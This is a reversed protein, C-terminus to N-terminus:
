TQGGLTFFFTAGREPEAEAWIAGGHRQVIRQAIALGVGSGDYEERKHLRQFVGFLKDAYRMDFGAGNDKVFYAGHGNEGNFGIEVWANERRRTFKFANSLLNLYVQRLLASDARCPPLEGIRVEVRRLELEVAMEALVERVLTRTEIRRRAIPHRSLRSFELLGEVLVAMRISRDGILDLYKRAPGSFEDAHKELLIHSFGEIARLPTRLDHAISYGFAELERNASDLEATRLAVRRELEENLKRIEERAKYRDTADRAAAMVWIGKDTTLPSLSIEAPFESGDKRLGFLDRSAGMPRVKPQKMYGARHLPHTARLNAPILVEIPRGALESRPYGFLTEAQLNMLQITGEADAIVMADPASELLASFRAEAATREELERRLAVVTRDLEDTREHVTQELRDRISELNMRARREAEVALALYEESRLGERVVAAVMYGVIAVSGLYTQLILLREPGAGAGFPGRGLVTAGIAMASLIVTGLTVGRMGFRLGAWLIPLFFPYVNPFHWTRVGPLEWFVLTWLGLGVLLLLACEIVRSRDWRVWPLLVYALIAPAVVLDGLMDGVWWALWASKVEGPGFMGGLYGMSVGMASSILTSGVVAGLLFVLAAKSRILMAEAGGARNVLFAGALAELTNGAAMGAAAWFPVGALANVAFAGLAVGPWYKYGGLLLVALSLGTPIWVPAAIGGFAGLSFGLHGAAVYLAALSLHKAWLRLNPYPASGSMGDPYPMGKIM